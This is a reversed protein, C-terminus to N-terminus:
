AKTFDSRQLEDERKRLAEYRARLENIKPSKPSSSPGDFLIRLMSGSTAEDAHHAASVPKASFMIIVSYDSIM